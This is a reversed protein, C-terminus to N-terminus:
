AIRGGDVPLAVGTIFSAEDSALFLIAAAVEEPKGFRGLPQKSRYLEAMRDQAERDQGATEFTAKLMPTDISGPCVCNVRVQRPAYRVALSRTMLVVAGKTASYGGLAPSGVLGATSALNVIAGRGAGLMAPAFTKICLFSGKVNIDFLREWEEVEMEEIAGGHGVTGASNVLISPEGLTDICAKRAAFVSAEETVDGVLTLIPAKALAATEGLGESSRDFAAVKAGEAAFRLATARGIGSGAGTVIAVKGDLLNRTM